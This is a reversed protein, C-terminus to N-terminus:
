FVFPYSVSIGRQSKAFTATKLVSVVCAGLAPDPSQTAIASEVRGDGNVKFKVTVRGTVGAQDGCVKVKGKVKAIGAQVAAKDLTEPLGPTPSPTPSPKKFRKCCAGAYNDIVCSVEDCSLPGTTPTPKERPPTPAPPSRRGRESSGVAVAADVAPPAEALGADVPVAAAPAAVVAPDPPPPPPPLTAAAAAPGPPMASATVGADVEDKAGGGALVMVAVAAAVAAGGVALLVLTPNRRPPAHPAASVAGASGGLTSPAPAASYASSPLTAAHAVAPAPAQSTVAGGGPLARVLEDLSAFREDASKALCRAVIPDFAALSPAVSSIPPPPVFRHQDIFETFGPGEFPLRGVLMEFLIIGFAYVDTRADVKGASAWQEPSMYAPTGMPMATMTKVRADGALKAIGFDLVKIREGGAIDPDPVIFLNDPKLDRHVIGRAHAKAVARAAQRLFTMAAAPDLRGIRRLRDALSEGQLLEMVIYASGDDLVGQDFIRVIGPDDLAAAAQAEQFFRQVVDASRTHEPLLKKVVAMQGMSRHRATYVVGMGGRALEAVIEYNGIVEGM